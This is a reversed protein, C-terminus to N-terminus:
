STVMKWGESTFKVTASVSMYKFGLSNMCGTPPKEKDISMSTTRVSLDGGSSDVAHYTRVRTTKFSVGLAAQSYSVCLPKLLCSDQLMCCNLGAM